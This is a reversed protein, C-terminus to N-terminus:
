RPPEDGVRDLVLGAVDLATGAVARITAHTTVLSFDHVAHVVKAPAAIMPVAELVAFTRGANVKQVREVARSGHEVADVVLAVLGRLREM